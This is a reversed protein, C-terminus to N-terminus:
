LEEEDEKDILEIDYFDDEHELIYTALEPIDIEDSPDNFTELNAYGNFKVYKNQYNYEGFCVARIADMIKNGFYVEFFEEDNFSIEDDPYEERCRINWYNVLDDDSIQTLYEEVDEQTRYVEEKKM